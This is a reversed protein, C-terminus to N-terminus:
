LTIGYIRLIFTIVNHSELYIEGMTGIYDSVGLFEMTFLSLFILIESM